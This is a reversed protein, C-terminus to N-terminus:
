TQIENKLPLNTKPPKKEQPQDTISGFAVYFDM